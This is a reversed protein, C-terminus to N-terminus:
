KATSLSTFCFVKRRVSTFEAYGAAFREAPKTPCSVLLGLPIVDGKDILMIHEPCSVGFEDNRIKYYKLTLSGQKSVKHV